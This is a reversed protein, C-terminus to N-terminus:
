YIFIYLDIYRSGAALLATYGAVLITKAGHADVFFPVNGTTWFHGSCELVMAAANSCREVDEQLINGFRRREARGTLHETRGSTFKKACAPLEYLSKTLLEGM